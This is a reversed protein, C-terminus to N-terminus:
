RTSSQCGTQGPSLLLVCSRAIEPLPKPIVSTNHFKGARQVLWQWGQYCVPPGLLVNYHLDWLDVCSWKKFSVPSSFWGRFWLKPLLRPYFGTLCSNLLRLHREKWSLAQNPLQISCFVWLDWLDKAKAQGLLSCSGKRRERRQKKNSLLYEVAVFARAVRWNDHFWLCLILFGFKENWIVNQANALVSWLWLSVTGM